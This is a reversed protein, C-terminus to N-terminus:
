TGGLGMAELVPGVVDHLVDSGVAELAKNTRLLQTLTGAVRDLAVVLEETPLEKQLLDAMVARAVAIELRLDGPPLDLAQELAVVPVYASFRGHKRANQNGPQGGGVRQARGEAHAGCWDSGTQARTRCRKYGCRRMGHRERRKGGM